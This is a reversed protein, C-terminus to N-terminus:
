INRIAESAQGRERRAALDMCGVPYEGVVQAMGLMFGRALDGPGARM